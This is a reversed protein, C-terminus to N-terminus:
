EHPATPLILENFVTQLVWLPGHNFRQATELLYLPLHNPRIGRHRSISTRAAAWFRDAASVGQGITSKRSTRVGPLQSVRHWGIKGAQSTASLVVGQLRAKTMRARLVESTCRPFVLHVQSRDSLIGMIELNHADLYKQSSNWGDISWGRELKLRSYLEASDVEARRGLAMRFSTFAAHATPYGCGYVRCAHLATAGLAFATVLKWGLKRRDFSWKGGCRPCYRQGNPQPSTATHCRWCLQECVHLEYASHNM